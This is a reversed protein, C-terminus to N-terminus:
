EKHNQRLKLLLEIETKGRNLRKAIEETSYGKEKLSLAQDFDSLPKGENKLKEDRKVFSEDVLPPLLKEEDATLNISPQKQYAKVARLHSGKGLNPKEVKEQEIESEITEKKPPSAKPSPKEELMTRVKKIFRDNEESMELLYTSIVEEMEKMLKEQTKEVQVLRNQRLYLIVICFLAVANLGLSFLLLINTM